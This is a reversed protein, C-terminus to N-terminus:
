LHLRLAEFFSTLSLLEITSQRMLIQCFKKRWRQHHTLHELKKIQLIMSSFLKVVNVITNMTLFFTIQWQCYMLILLFTKWFLSLIKLAFHMCTALSPFLKDSVIVRNYETADTNSLVKKKMVSSTNFTWAKEDTTDNIHFKLLMSLM